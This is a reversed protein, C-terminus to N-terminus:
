GVNRRKEMDKKVLGDSYSQQLLTKGTKRFESSRGSREQRKKEGKGLQFTAMRGEEENEIKEPPFDGSVGGGGKSLIPEDYRFNRASLSITQELMCPIFVWDSSRSGKEDEATKEEGGNDRKRSYIQFFGRGVLLDTRNTTRNPQDAAKKHKL